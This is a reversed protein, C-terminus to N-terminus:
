GALRISSGAASPYGFPRTAGVGTLTRKLDSKKVTTHRTFSELMVAARYARQREDGHSTLPVRGMATEGSERSLRRLAPRLKRLLPDGDANLAALQRSARGLRTLTWGEHASSPVDLLQM